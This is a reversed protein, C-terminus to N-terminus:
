SALPLSGGEEAEDASEEDANALWTIFPAAAERAKNGSEDSKDQTGQGYWRVVTNEDLVDIEYLAMLITATKKLMADGHKPSTVLNIVGQLVARQTTRKNTSSELMGRLLPACDKIQKVAREDFLEDFVFGILNDIPVGHDTALEMIKRVNAETAGGQMDNAIQDVRQDVGPGHGHDHEHAGHGHGHNAEWSPFPDSLSLWSEKGKAMEEDTLLCAELQAKAAESDLERGICVLETRRDGHVTDWTHYGTPDQEAALLDQEIEQVLEKPWQERPIAAVWPPGPSMTFQTGALAAHAQQRPRTPLWAFGKLRLLGALAGSRPRSGLTAHLREPHFPRKARFVFSSIGYEITEPTHEHERAEVLWKPHEEAEQMSFRAKQLLAAPEIVSHETRVIEAKPNVKRLFAEVAGCQAESVLDCKNILLLNAFELQDCLLHAVTRKDGEVEHWGRDVLTDMSKLQEFISAADLVTVLNHLSAVDNLSVATAQDRFTFTEAVPLPESIGSSEVLVHDFRQESALSSLSTLLDERLTCCICGNSLEVMKEEKQLMGGRRVLEADINVSAMDNVIVAIRYGARNNLMHNLLTTKGAGLFGSLVTVPLPGTAGAKRVLRAAEFVAAYPNSATDPVIHRWVFIVAAPRATAKLNEPKINASCMGDPGHFLLEFREDETPARGAVRGVVTNFSKGAASTLGTIEACMGTQWETIHSTAIPVVHDRWVRTFESEAPCAGERILRASLLHGLLVLDVAHARAPESTTDVLAKATMRVMQLCGLLTARLCFVRKGLVQVLGVVGTASARARRTRVSLAGFRSAFTARVTAGTRCGQTCSQYESPHVPGGTSYKTSQEM